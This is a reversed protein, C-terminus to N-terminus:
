KARLYHEKLYFNLRQVCLTLRDAVVQQAWRIYDQQLPRNAKATYVNEALLEGETLILRLEMNFPLPKKKGIPIAQWFDDKQSVGFGMDWVRHLNMRCQRGDFQICTLNGGRDHSCDPHVKTMTHLPQHADEILHIYFAILIAEQKISTKGKLAEDILKLSKELRGSDRIRCAKEKDTPKYFFNQYHWNSSHRNAVKALAPPVDKEFVEALPKNRISDVWASLDSFQINQGPIQLALQAYYLRQDDSMLTELKSGVANHVQRSWAAADLAQVFFTTLIFAYLTKSAM